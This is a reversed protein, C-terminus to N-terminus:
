KASPRTVAFGAALLRQLVAHPPVHPHGAFRRRRYAYEAAFMAGVLPATAVNAFLSWAALPAFAALSASVGAMALFFVCWVATVARTYRELEPPLEAVGRVVRAISTVLPVRGAVLTRGFFWALLLNIALSPLFVADAGLYWALGLAGAVLASEALAVGAARALGVAFCAAGIWSLAVALPRAADIVTLVHLAIASAALAAAALLVGPRAM